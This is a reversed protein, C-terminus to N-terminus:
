ASAQARKRTVRARALRRWRARIRRGDLGIRKFALWTGTGCVLTVGVLLLGVVVDWVPRVRLGAFDFDHLGTRIWRSIRHKAGVTRVAGTTENIYLRTAEDDGLIVRYVPLDVTGKHGYYFSDESRLVSFEGVAAPLQAVAAEVDRRRLPAAQANADLRLRTGDSRTGIVYLRGDFPASELQKLDRPLEASGVASLFRRLEALTAEGRLQRAYDSPGGSLVGGPDVTMLGSFVWTLALIGFVLGTIHHWYWSGRFPSVRGHRKASAYRTIGVYIGTAALFLGIVSTWIVVQLWLPGNQRLQTPYLWHPIAGLWTLVRERRNTDQFVEGSAGSLYIETGAADDFAFHHVPRNRRAAQVTWQDIEVVGLPRPEGAIGNGRGFERAIHLLEADTFGLRAEGTRLSVIGAAAAGAGPGGLRVIPEGGLMEIRFAPAPASGDVAIADEVLLAEVACCGSLRLPELGDLREAATLSPYSQYMMVFGSLCWLTMLLGVAVGLYRHVLLIVRM